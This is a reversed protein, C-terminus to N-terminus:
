NASRAKEYWNTGDCILTVTDDASTVFNGAIKLNGGDTFTLVNDFRLTVERGATSSAAAISTINNTGTILFYQGEGLTLEGGAPSAINSGVKINVTGNLTIAKGAAVTQTIGGATATLAIAAADTGQTNTVVITESTGVNATLAIASAANDKSSVLVQGGSIDINKAAAADIDVGGVTATLAIAGEATGQTNTTTITESSGINATFSIAGAANDKSVIKVQGGALDLDKAAAADVNVGGATATLTIASEGTGQTNTIVITESVGINATLSIASAADDKSVIAVQGGAINVDQAAPADVDIGGASAQLSIADAGTGSSALIVSSDTAGTVSITLDDAAGDSALTIGLAEGATGTIDAVGTFAGATSVDWTTSNIAVTELGDGVAVAITDGNTITMAPRYTTNDVDYGQFLVTQATTTSSKIGKTTAFTMDGTLDLSAVGTFAGATSVDWTSSNVAVSSTGNGITTVGTVGFSGASVAGSFTGASGTVLGAKTVFWTGSTGHIDYGTGANTIQISDGSGTTKNVFFTDNTAHSGNLQLAASDVTIVAGAGAGGQDYAQDLTNGTGTATAWSLTGSGNTQLYYSAAGDAAPLTYTVGRLKLTSGAFDVAGDVELTGTIYADNQGATTGPTGAGVNLSGGTVQVAVKSDSPSGLKVTVKKSFNQEDGTNLAQGPMVVLFLFMFIVTFVTLRKM